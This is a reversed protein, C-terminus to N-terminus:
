NQKKEEKEPAKKGHKTAYNACRDAVSQDICQNAKKILSKTTKDVKFSEKIKDGKYMDLIYNLIGRIVIPKSNSEAESSIVTLYDEYEFTIPDQGLVAWNAISKFNFSNDTDCNNNRKKQDENKDIKNGDIVEMDFDINPTVIELNYSGNEEVLLSLAPREFTSGCGCDKKFTKPFGLWMNKNKLTPLIKPLPVFQTGGRLLNTNNRENVKSETQFVSKCNNKDLSCSLIELSDYDYIFHIDGLNKTSDDKNNPMFFPSWNVEKLGLKVDMHSFKFHVNPDYKRHPLFGRIKTEKHSEQFILLPEEGNKDSRVIARLNEFGRWKDFSEFPMNVVHPYQVTYKQLILNIKEETKAKKAVNTAICKDYKIRDKMVKDCNKNELRDELKNLYKDVKQPMVVDKYPIKKDTLENWNIDYAQAYIINTSTDKPNAKNSYMINTYTIFCESQELWVAVTDLIKWRKELIDKEDMQKEKTESFFKSYPHNTNILYNRINKLNIKSKFDHGLLLNDLQYDHELDSCGVSEINDLTTTNLNPTYGVYNKRLFNANRIEDSFGKANNKQYRLGRSIDFDLLQNKRQVSNRINYYSVGQRTFLFFNLVIFAALIIFTNRRRGLVVKVFM